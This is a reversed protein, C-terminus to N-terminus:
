ETTLTAIPSVRRLTLNGGINFKRSSGARGHFTIEEAYNGVLADSTTTRSAFDTGSSSFNLTILRSVTYSEAGTAAVTKFDVQLNDHDPHYTHLFPNAAHDNYDMTVNFSITEGLGVQGSLQSWSQNGHSFPLHATSIRRASALQAPDLSSQRTAVVFDDQTGIGYYVRQLLRAGNTGANHVILRLPYSRAVGTMATNTGTVIYPAGNSSIASSVLQGAADRQFTKLYQGVQTINAQGVWLGSTDGVVASVSVDVQKLGNTDGFRLVGAYVSGAAGTMASRDVGLVLDYESGEEGQPALVFVHQQGNLETHAFTLNTTLAGRVLIPPVDVINRQGAPPTESAILDLTVTQTAATTNKLRVRRTGLNAEFAIGSGHPVSVDFPGFYHNYSDGGRIWFAEGRNVPTNRYLPPVVHVPNTSSLEGGVYRYIEANLHLTPAPQLFDDFSPSSAAPTAFGVFNLGSTTWDNKPAVPRGKLTWVYDTSNTNLVLYASNGSLRILSDAVVPSRNWVAWQSNPTSPEQPSNVYQVTTAPPQWLWIESIPNGAGAVVHDILEHSVDIHLYVSNWGPKLQMSQSLWQARVIPPSLVFTALLLLLSRKTLHHHNM